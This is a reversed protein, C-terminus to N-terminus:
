HLPTTNGPLNELTKGMRKECVKFQYGSNELNQLTFAFDLFFEVNKKRKRCKQDRVKPLTCRQKFPLFPLLSIGALLFM